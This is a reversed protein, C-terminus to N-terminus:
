IALTIPRTIMTGYAKGIRDCVSRQHLEYAKLVLQAICGYATNFQAQGASEQPLMAELAADNQLWAVASQQRNTTTLDIDIRDMVTTLSDASHATVATQVKAPGDTVGLAHM